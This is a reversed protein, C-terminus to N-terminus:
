TRLKDSLDKLRDALYNRLKKQIGFLFSDTQFDDKFTMKNPISYKIKEGKENEFTVVQKQFSWGSVSYKYGNVYFWGFRYLSETERDNDEFVVNYKSDFLSKRLSKLNDKDKNTM